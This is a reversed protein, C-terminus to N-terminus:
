SDSNPTLLNGTVIFHKRAGNTGVPYIAFTVKGEDGDAHSTIQFSIFGLDMAKKLYEEFSM